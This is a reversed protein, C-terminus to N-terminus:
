RLKIVDPSITLMYGERSVHRILLQSLLQNGLHDRLRKIRTAGAAEECDISPKGSIAAKGRWVNWTGPCTPRRMGPMPSAPPM